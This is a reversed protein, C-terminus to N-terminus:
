IYQVHLKINCYFQLMIKSLCTGGGGGLEVVKRISIEKIIYIWKHMKEMQTNEPSGHVM